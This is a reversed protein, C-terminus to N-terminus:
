ILVDVVLVEDNLRIAIGQFPSNVYEVQADIAQQKLDDIYNKIRECVFIQSFRYVNKEFTATRAEYDVSVTMFEITSNSSNEKYTSKILDYINSM